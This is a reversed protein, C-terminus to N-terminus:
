CRSAGLVQTGSANVIEVRSNERVLQHQTPPEIM